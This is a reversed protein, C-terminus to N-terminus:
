EIKKDIKNEDYIYILKKINTIEITYCDGTFLFDKYYRECNNKLHLSEYNREFDFPIIYVSYRASM